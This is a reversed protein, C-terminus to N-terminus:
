SRNAEEVEKIADQMIKIEDNTLKRYVRIPVGFAIVNSPVDKNVFSFAGIISNDGITVGPSILSHSGVRVNRGLVVSGRKGDITSESYISCCSGIQTYDGIIVGYKANIYTFAGIDVYKGLKLNEPYKVIWMWRTLGNEDFKPAEWKRNKWRLIGYALDM